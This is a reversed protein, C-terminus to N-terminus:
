RALGYPSDMLVTVLKNLDRTSPNPKADPTDTPKVGLLTCVATIERDSLTMGFLRRGVASVVQGNSAPLTAPLLMDLALLVNNKTGLQANAATVKGDRGVCTLTGPTSLSCLDRKNNWATLTAGTTLWHAAVDPYGDPPRWGFPAHGASAARAYLDVLSQVGARRVPDSANPDPNDPLLSLVRVGAALQEFPRHLKAGASAAFEASTFLTRLVPAIATGTHLYVGALRDVLSAPPDDSVFHTVLKRALRKATAPHKALYDFYRLAVAEGGSRSANADTFGLVKVKGTWHWGPRYDYTEDAADVSLGTLIRASNVVGTEGYGAEVGVTHLELLERAQNENPHGQDSFRNGLSSLMAPHMEVARLLDTFRGLARARIVNAYDARHLASADQPLPVNFHNGWFDEMVTLLQRESWLARALHARAVDLQVDNATVVKDDIKVKTDIAYKLDYIPRSLYPSLRRLVSGCLEDPIRSPALQADLWATMSARSTGLKALLAPSPGYTARRALHWAMSTGVYPTVARASAAVPGTSPARPDVKAPPPKPKAARKPNLALDLAHSYVLARKRRDWRYPIRRWRGKADRRYVKAGVFKAKIKRRRAKTVKTTKTRRDYTWTVAELITVRRVEARTAAVAAGPLVLSAGTAAATLTLAGLVRRRLPAASGGASPVAEHHPQDDAM